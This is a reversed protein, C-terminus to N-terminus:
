LKNQEVQPLPHLKGDISSLYYNGQGDSPILLLDRQWDGDIWTLRMWGAPQNSFLDYNYQSHITGVFTDNSQLKLEVAGNDDGDAILIIRVAVSGAHSQYVTEPAGIDVDLQQPFADWLLWVLLGILALRVLAVFLKMRHNM